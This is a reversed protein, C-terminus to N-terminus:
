LVLYFVWMYLFRCLFVFLILYNIFKEICEVLSFITVAAISIRLSVSDQYAKQNPLSDFIHDVEKIFEVARSLHSARFAVCKPMIILILGSLTMVRYWLIVTRKEESYRLSDMEYYLDVCNGILTPVHVFFYWWTLPHGWSFTFRNLKGSQHDMEMRFPFFGVSQCIWVFPRLKCLGAMPSVPGLGVPASPAMPKRAANTPPLWSMLHYGTAM